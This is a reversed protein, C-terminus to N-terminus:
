IKSKWLKKMSNSAICFIINLIIVIFCAIGIRMFRESINIDSIKKSINHLNNKAISCELYLMLWWIVMKVMNKLVLTKNYSKIKLNDTKVFLPRLDFGKYPVWLIGYGYNVLTEIINKGKITENTIDITSLVIFVTVSTIVAIFLSIVKERGILLCIVIDVLQIKYLVFVMLAYYTIWFSFAQINKRLEEM